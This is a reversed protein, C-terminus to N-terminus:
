LLIAREKEIEGSRRRALKPPRDTPSAAEVLGGDSAFRNVEGGDAKVGM